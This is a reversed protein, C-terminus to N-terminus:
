KVEVQKKLRIKLSKEIKNVLELNSSGRTLFIIQHANNKIDEQNVLEYKLTINMSENTGFYAKLEDFDYKPTIHLKNDDIEATEDIEIPADTEATIAIKIGSALKVGKKSTNIPIFLGQDQDDKINFRLKAQPSIDMFTPIVDSPNVVDSFEKGKLANVIGENQAAQTVMFYILYDNNSKADKNWNVLHKMLNAQGGFEPSQEGDTLLIVINNRDATVYKEKAECFPGSINTDTPTTFKNKADKIKALLEAKGAETANFKWHELIGVQFPLVILETSPDSISNIDTELWNVVEPWVNPTNGKYGHMSLTVDLVYIRRDIARDELVQEPAKDQDQTQVQQAYAYGCLM